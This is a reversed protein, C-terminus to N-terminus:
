GRGRDFIRMLLWVPIVLTAGLILWNGVQDLAGFGLNWIGAFFDFFGDVLLAPTMGMASLVVGVLVSIVVLKTVVAVPSGGLFRNVANSM